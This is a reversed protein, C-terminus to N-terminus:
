RKDDWITGPAVVYSLLAFRLGVERVRTFLTDFLRATQCPPAIHNFADEKETLYDAVSDKKSDQKVQLINFVTPNWTCTGNDKVFNQQANIYDYKSDCLPMNVKINSVHKGFISIDMKNAAAIFVSLLHEYLMQEKDCTMIRGGIAGHEELHDAINSLVISLKRAGNFIMGDKLAVLTAGAADDIVHAIMQQDHEKGTVSIVMPYVVTMLALGRKIDKILQSNKQFAHEEKDLQDLLYEKYWAYNDFYDQYFECPNINKPIFVDSGISEPITTPVIGDINLWNAKIEVTSAHVLYKTIDFPAGSDIITMVVEETLLPKNAKAVMADLAYLCGANDAYLDYAAIAIHKSDDKSTIKMIETIFMEINRSTSQTGPVLILTKKDIPARELYQLLRTYLPGNPYLGSRLVIIDVDNHKYYTEMDMNNYQRSLFNVEFSAQYKEQTAEVHFEDTERLPFKQVLAYNWIEEPTTSIVDAIAQSVEKNGSSSTFAQMYAFDRIAENPILYKGHIFFEEKTITFNYKLMALIDAVITNYATTIETESYTDLIDRKDILNSVFASTFIMSSTTGDHCADDVKEGVFCLVDDKIYRQIPSAYEINQLTHRGDRTFLKIGRASTVANSMQATPNFLIFANRAYPGSIDLLQADLQAFTRKTIDVFDSDKVVNQLDKAANLVIADAM